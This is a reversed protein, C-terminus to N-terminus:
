RREELLEQLRTGLAEIEGREVAAAITGDCFREGRLYYTFRTMIEEATLTDVPKDKLAEMHDLYDHDMLGTEEVAKMWDYIEDDYIPYPMIIVGDETKNGGGWEIHRPKLVPIASLKKKDEQTMLDLM